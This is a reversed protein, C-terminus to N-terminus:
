SPALTGISEAYKVAEHPLSKSLVRVSAIDDKPTTATDTNVTLMRLGPANGSAAIETTANM